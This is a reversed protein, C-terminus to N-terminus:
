IRGPNGDPYENLYTVMDMLHQDEHIRLGKDSALRQLEGEIKKKREEPRVMVFNSKCSRSMIKAGTVRFRRKAWSDIGQPFM